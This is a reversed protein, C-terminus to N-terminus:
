SLVRPGRRPSTQTNRVACPCVMTLRKACSRLSPCKRTQPSPESEDGPMSKPGTASRAKIPHTMRFRRCLSSLLTCMSAMAIGHPAPTSRDPGSNPCVWLEDLDFCACRRSLWHSFRYSASWSRPRLMPWHRSPTFGDGLLKQSLRANFTAPPLLFPWDLELASASASPPLRAAAILIVAGAPLVM